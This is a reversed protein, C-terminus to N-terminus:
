DNSTRGSGYEGRSEAVKRAPERQLTDGIEYLFEPAFDAGNPWEITGTECNVAVKGFIERNQLPEFVRGSLECALDVCKVVGDDFTVILRYEGAYEVESVHIFM